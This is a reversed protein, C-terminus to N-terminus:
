EYVRLIEMLKAIGRGWLMRAADETRGGMQEGVERFSLGEGRLQLALRQDETLQSMAAAIQQFTETQRVNQSPSADQSELSGVGAVSRGANRREATHFRIADTAVNQLIQKLWASFEKETTGQFQEIQTVGRILTEQVLDSRDIRVQLASPIFQEAVSVLWPRYIEILRDIAQSDNGELVMALLTDFDFASAQDEERSEAGTM